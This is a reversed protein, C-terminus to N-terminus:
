ALGCGVVVDVGGCCVELAASGFAMARRGAGAGVGVNALSQEFRWEVLGGVGLSPGRSQLEDCGVVGGVWWGEAATEVVVDVLAM